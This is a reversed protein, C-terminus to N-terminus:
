NISFQMEEIAVSNNTATAATSTSTRPRSNNLLIEHYDFSKPTTYVSKDKDRRERSEVSM